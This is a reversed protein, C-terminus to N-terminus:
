GDRKKREDLEKKLRVVSLRDVFWTWGDPQRGTLRGSYLWRRVQSVDRGLIAAAQKTTLEDQRTIPESM